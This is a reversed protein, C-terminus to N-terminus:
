KAHPVQEYHQKLLDDGFDNEIDRWVAHVHNADNQTNDYEMLFTAGQVRYYQGQGPEIGGAWVFFIKEWGAKEIKEWDAESLKSRNRGIFELIVAKLKERQPVTMESACLGLPQLRSAKRSDGSVVEKPAVNTIIAISRQKADLSSMLQRGLDEEAALVRLGARPGNRVEAPNTGFFSPTTALVVDGRVTFNLSLHHGEVRFGWVDGGPKGFISVYYLEPNRRPSKNELDFLIQELSMITVAKFYGRHSLASNLLVLALHKQAASMEALPLGKRAQPVFHWNVREDSRFDFTAKTRQEPTLSAEFNKAADAMEVAPPHAHSANLSLQVVIVVVAVIHRHISKVGDPCSLPAVNAISFRQFFAFCFLISPHGRCIRLLSGNSGEPGPPTRLDM